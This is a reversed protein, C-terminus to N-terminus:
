ADTPYKCTKLPISHGHVRIESCVRMLYTYMVPIRLIHIAFFTNFSKVRYFTFLIKKNKEAVAFNSTVPICTYRRYHTTSYNM